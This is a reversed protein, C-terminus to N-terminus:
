IEEDSLLEQVYVGGQVEEVLPIAEDEVRTVVVHKATAATTITAGSKKRRERLPMGSKKGSNDSYNDDMAFSDNDKDAVASSSSRKASNSRSKNKDDKELTDNKDGDKVNTESKDGDKNRELCAPRVMCAKKLSGTGGFQRM